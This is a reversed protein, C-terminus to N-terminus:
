SIGLKERVFTLAVSLGDPAIGHGTGNMVLSCVEFGAGSLAQNAEGMSQVPVLDDMDGHVLLIPPRSITQELLDEPQLLWGSFGVIAGFPEVRRPAVHLSM